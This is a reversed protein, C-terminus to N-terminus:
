GLGVDQLWHIRLMMPFQNSLFTEYILNADISTRILQRATKSTLYDKM